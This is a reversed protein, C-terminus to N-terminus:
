RRGCDKVLDFNTDVEIYLAAGIPKAQLVQATAIASIATEATREVHGVSQGDLPIVVTFSGEVNEHFHTALIANASASPSGPVNLTTSLRSNLAASTSLGLIALLIWTAVVLSRHRLMTRTWRNLM